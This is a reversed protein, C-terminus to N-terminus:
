PALTDALWRAFAPKGMFEDLRRRVLPLAHAVVVERLGLDALLEGLPRRAEGAFLRELAATVDAVFTPKWDALAARATTLLPSLQPAALAALEPGTEELLADLVAKRIAAQERARTPDALEAAIGEIVEDVATDAFGEALAGLPTPRSRTGFAIKSIGRAVINETLGATARRAFDVLTRLVQERLLRRVPGRGLVRMTLERPLRWDLEAVRRASALVGAPLASSLRSAPLRSLLAALTTESLVQAASDIFARTPEILDTAPTALADDVLLEALRPAGARLRELLLDPRNPDPADAM